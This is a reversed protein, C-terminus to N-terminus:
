TFFNAGDDSFTKSSVGTSHSRAPFAKEKKARKDPDEGTRPIATSAKTRSGFLLPM